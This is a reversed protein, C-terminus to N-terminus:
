NGEGKTSDYVLLQAADDDKEEKSDNVEIVAESIDDVEDNKDDDVLIGNGSLEGQTILYHLASVYYFTETLAQIVTYGSLKKNEGTMILDLKLVDDPNAIVREREKKDLMLKDMSMKLSSIISYYSDRLKKSAISRQSNKDALLKSKRIDTINMDKEIVSINKSVAMYENLRNRLDSVSIIANTFEGLYDIKQHDDFLMNYKVYKALFVISYEKDLLDFLVKIRFIKDREDLFSIDDFSSINSKIKKYNVINNVLKLGIDVIKDHKNRNEKGINKKAEEIMKNKLDQERIRKITYYGFIDEEGINLLTIIDKELSGIFAYELLSFLKKYYVNYITDLNKKFTSIQKNISSNSIKYLKAYAIFSKEAAIKIRSSYNKTIYLPKIISIIADLYDSAKLHEGNSEYLRLFIIYSGENYNDIYRQILEM